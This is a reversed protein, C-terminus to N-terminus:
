HIVIKKTTQFDDNWIKVIYMGSGYNSLDYAKSTYNNVQLTESLVVAGVNNFIEVNFTGSYEYLEIMFAGSNPNPYLEVGPQLNANQVSTLQGLVFSDFVKHGFDPNFNKLVPGGDQKFRLYGSGQATNAWYSLGDMGTDIMEFTYCGPNLELTDSYITNAMLNNREFVIEGALNRITYSNQGPVNNTKLLVIFNEEYFDPMNFSSRYTDNDGNLDANNNPNSITAVFEYPTDGMWFELNTVPLTLTTKAHPALNGTWNYTLADGGVVQYTITASTLNVSSNNRIVVQPERCIPNKRSYYQMESPSIIDLIEADLEYNAWAYEVLHMAIVYNGGGMGLNNAPVPTISYDLNLSNGSLYQTLEFENDKVLDGPCWGERAGPWTGGQPFVPNLACETEQWINWNQVQQGNVHLYHTNNKWECCHPYNGTNSNHGHGTLRTILKANQTGPTLEVDTAALQENNSLASYSYSGMNGWVKKIDIVNRPPSGHIFAFKVDILEQQNGMEIDVMGRLLNTYDTVDYVWMFGNPGLSLNIGYPTIFRGIEWREIVEFAPGYYSVPYNILTTQAGYCTSDIVTGVPSFTYSCGVPWGIISEIGTLIENDATFEVVCVPAVLVSDTVLVSDLSTTYNGQMLQINPRHALSGTHKVRETQSWNQVQPSGFLIGNLGNGSIDEINLGDNFNYYVVLDDFNPHSADPERYAWAAITEATLEKAYVQFDDIKGPYGENTNVGKALNFSHIKGIPMTKNTGTHWILGNLYIKMNGTTANKTFVWHNWQGSINNGVAAKDIRDYGAGGGADWYVRSNSWPLHVNLSRDGYEDFAELLYTNAPFQGPTGYAWLAITVEDGFDEGNVPIKIYSGSSFSAYSDNNDSVLARGTDVVSSAVSVSNEEEANDYSIEVLLGMTGNWNFPTTLNIINSINGELLTNAKYVQTFGLAVFNTISATNYNRIRITLNQALGGNGVVEFALRQIAGAVLGSGQLEAATYLFQARASKQTLNFPQNIPVNEDGVTFVSESIVEDVSQTYQYSQHYNYYPIPQYNIEEPSSTGLIYANQNVLNSDLEGTHDYVFNYTLYDWEGCAYQDQTTQADCKLTYYMLVKRFPVDPEPFLYQGRRKTIDNFTLTQVFTTDQAMLASSVVMLLLIMKLKM